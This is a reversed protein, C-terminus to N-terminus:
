VDYVLEKEVARKFGMMDNGYEKYDYQKCAYRLDVNTGRALLGDFSGPTSFAKALRNRVFSSDKETTTLLVAMTGHEDIVYARDEVRIGDRLINALRQRLEMFQTNTLLGRLETEYRLQILMLSIPLHNRDGYRVMIQMDRYLARANYLGTVDDVLVLEEVQRRLMVNEASLGNVATTFMWGAVAGVMPMPVMVYDITQLLAGQAYFMYLKYSVWVCTLAGSLVLAMSAQGMFGLLVLTDMVVIMVMYTVRMEEMGYALMAAQAFAWLLLLAVASDRLISSKLKKDM